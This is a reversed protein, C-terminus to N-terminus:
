LSLGEKMLFETLEEASLCVFAMRKRKCIRCPRVVVQTAQYVGGQGSSNTARAAPGRGPPGTGKEKM